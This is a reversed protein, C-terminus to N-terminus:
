LLGKTLIHTTYSYVIDMSMRKSTELTTLQSTLLSAQVQINVLLEQSSKELGNKMLKLYTMM